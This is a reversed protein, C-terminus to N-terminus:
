HGGQQSARIKTIAEFIGKAFSEAEDLTFEAIFGEFVIGLNGNKLEGIGINKKASKESM